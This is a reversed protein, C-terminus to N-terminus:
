QGPRPYKKLLAAFRPQYRVADLESTVKRLETNLLPLYTAHDMELAKEFQDISPEVKGDKSLLVGLRFHLLSQQIGGQLAKQYHSIAEDPLNLRDQVVGM